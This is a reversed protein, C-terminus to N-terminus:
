AQEVKPPLLKYVVPTVIRSLLTSSILGGILVIALPAILPNTSIAIPILGGIATLSTLVIPLFRIEGAERIATDLDKGQQRLQNTFDVLLITNKVEIGALAILGIIAVFSLSNGTIWLGLAAGVIGLPIVSLVILTSKFTKFELILVAIFLFITVIIISGFGSFSDERSEVEGGMGYKYGAPLKMKDMGSITENIIRDALFGKRVFAKVAVVRQKEHHNINVPSQELKLSAVQSLPIAAGQNNNVYLNNLVDMDSRGSKSRTVVVDYDNGNVDNYNGIPLGAVALRVMRDINVTPIGLMQAKEKNIDVRMDSKLIRLPNNVYITGPIRQLMHEVQGALARLTDLNDGYVRVEIPATIGTGQEFNKIEVKAGPYPTWLKQYRDILALKDKPSIDEKLQVFLQAYDTRENEQMENYYIRPNGKGINAAFYQVAKEKKLVEEIEKTIKNTYALNSQPPTSINILFQPKESAPFLSFGIIRFVFVSGAFILVATLITMWPRKLAHELLRAYSGHILRKLARMFINGEPNGTHQKLLRSSLFPIVTLSVAMSALVSFMVALPLSRIFDGSGEPMFAIPLFAIILMATCGIVAMGIQQTAKLTAEMRSHGELMWREINEVVVISDDVLLGLAVVLGVISLQNLNYGFLNLLIIGIALSLPISIMVIIAPRSGLPLLTVAVLLIAIIFDKGLGGLRKNVNDAQDFHPKFDINAPLTKSFRDIVPKYLKQANSINAKDKLAATVFVCRHANLRTVYKEDEYGYYVKAIDKLLINKGNAAFVITNKVEELSQYNGSTKINFTKNGADISGGPINAIESQMNGIVATVPINMQGMKDLDLEVRVQRDPLGHIKVNKLDPLKELDEQLDEAYKKLQERPASESILAMQLINVDSPQWKEVVISYIEAPLEGRKSNVLRVVEQYKAEVDSSYKYDIRIVAFGDGIVTRLRKVNELQYLDKEMPDVVLDEMDKPSAGPYIATITYVPAHVEPDESRPMNMITTIGLVIIMIFIILTFQYNKVAYNSIKM